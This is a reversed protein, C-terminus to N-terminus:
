MRTSNQSADTPTISGLSDRPSSHLNLPTAAGDNYTNKGVETPSLNNEKAADHIQSKNRLKSHTAYSRNIVVSTLDVEVGVLERTMQPQVM